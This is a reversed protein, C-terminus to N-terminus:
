IKDVHNQKVLECSKFTDSGSTFSAKYFFCSASIKRREIGITRSDEIWKPFLRRSFIFLSQKKNIAKTSSLCASSGKSHRRFCISKQDCKIPNWGTRTGWYNMTRTMAWGQCTLAQFTQDHASLYNATYPKQTSRWRIKDVEVDVFRKKKNKSVQKWTDVTNFRIKLIM